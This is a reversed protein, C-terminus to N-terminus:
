TIANATYNMRHDYDIQGWLAMGLTDYDGGVLKTYSAAPDATLAKFADVGDPSLVPIVRVQAVASIQLGGFWDAMQEGVVYGILNNNFGYIQRIFSKGTKLAAMGADTGNLGSCLTKNTAPDQKKSKLYADVGLVTDDPGLWVLVDPHAQLLTSAFQFGEDTNIKQLEQEILTIGPGGTKLADRTGEKRPILIEIHDLIFSVVTAKGGLQKTIYDVAGLGQQYGLDYQDAMGQMTAPHGSFWCCVGSPIAKVIVQGQAVSDDPQIWMGGIGKQLATNMQDINKVPDSGSIVQGAFEIKRETAAQKAADSLGNFYESAEPIFYSFTNPVPPKSGATTSPVFPKFDKLTTAQNPTNASSAAASESASAAASPAASAASAAASPAAASAAASPATSAVSAAASPATSATTGSCAAILAPGVILGAGAVVSRTLFARRGIQTPEAAPVPESASM